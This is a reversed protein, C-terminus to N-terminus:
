TCGYHKLIEQGDDPGNIFELFQKATEPNTSLKLMVAGQELTPDANAPIEWYQETAKM